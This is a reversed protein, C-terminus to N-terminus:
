NVILDVPHRQLGLPDDALRALRARIDARVRRERAPDGTRGVRVEITLDVPAKPSEPNLGSVRIWVPEDLLTILEYQRTTGADHTTQHVVAMESRTAAYLVATQV